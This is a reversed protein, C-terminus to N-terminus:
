RLNPNDSAGALTRSVRGYGCNKRARHVQFCEFPSEQASSPTRKVDTQMRDPVNDRINIELQLGKDTAIQRFNREIDDRLETFLVDSIEVGMNGSEIKSLDLIENILALLDAGSSHITEAFEV